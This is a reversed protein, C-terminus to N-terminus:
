KKSRKKVRSKRSPRLAKKPKPKRLKLEENSNGAVFTVRDEFLERVEWGEVFDGERVRDYKGKSDLLLATMGEATTYVGMLKANLKKSVVAVNPSIVGEPEDEKPKRDTFFLPREVIEIFTEQPDLSFKGVKIPESPNGSNTDVIEPPGFRYNIVVWELFAFVLLFLCCGALIATLGYEKHIAVKMAKM